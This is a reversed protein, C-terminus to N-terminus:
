VQMRMITEYAAIVKNRVQSLLQFAVDAKELAIMTNHIDRHRGASFAEVSREADEQLREAEDAASRLFSGFGEGPGAAPHSSGPRLFGPDLSPGMDSINKM